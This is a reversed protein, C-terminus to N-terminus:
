GRHHEQGQSRRRSGHRPEDFLNGTQEGSVQMQGQPVRVAQNREHHERCARSQDIDPYQGDVRGLEFLKRIGEVSIDYEYPHRGWLNSDNLTRYNVNNGRGFYGDYILELVFVNCKQKLISELTQEDYVSKNGIIKKYEETSIIQKWDKKIATVRGLTCYGTVASKYQKQDGDHKRYVFVLGGPAYNFREASYPTAIYMKTIGNSVPLVFDPREVGKLESNQFMEDHFREEIPLYKALRLEPNVFPFAKRPDSFDIAERDKLLILEGRENRSVKKFGFRELLTVLSDHKKFVTAYIQRASSERWKWLAIGIAGEGYRQGEHSDAIKLTSIKMRPADPIPNPFGIEEDTEIDEKISLFVTIGGLSDRVVYARAEQDAKRRFWDDFGPYDERLSDFFPDNLNCDGFAVNEFAM